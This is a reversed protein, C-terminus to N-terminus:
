KNESYIPEEEYDSPNVWFTQESGAEGAMYREYFDHAAEIRFPYSDFIDPDPGVVRPDNTRKLDTFLKEKMAEKLRQYEPKEALNVVCYPDVAIHYLQEQPNKGFNLEWFHTDIGDRRLNLIFTKTPSGDTNLYGTEPNGAPWLHPKFNHMYLYGDQIISRIPYGQNKPRGYDHREQGLLIYSWDQKRLSDRFIEGMDKGSSPEMGAEEMGIGVAGMITPAFDVFSVFGEEVRGPNKIGEPWMIALPMHNSIEYQMGKARPFPMGNDSTFIIITNDLEGREELLALMRGLHGDAHEIEFAYDLMDNRIIENDPWFSPVEDIDAIRKGGVRVGSGYEYSRHPEHAGYWFAWPQGDENDDLFQEFNRAYDTSSITQTPSSATHMNFEAGVLPRDPNGEVRGPAWPKGTFGAVYGYEALAEMWTKFRTEPWVAAHVGIQELQWSYRGTLIAARSPACKANPTYANEFLIGEEALRDFAPTDVWTTGYASMHPYSTDDMIGFLINPRQTSESAQAAAFLCLISLLIISLKM